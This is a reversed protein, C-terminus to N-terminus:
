LFVTQQISHLQKAVCDLIRQRARNMGRWRPHDKFMGASGLYGLVAYFIVMLAASAALSYGLRTCYVRRQVKSSHNM